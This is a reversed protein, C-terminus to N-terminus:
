EASESDRSPIKKDRAQKLEEVKANLFDEIAKEQRKDDAMMAQFNGQYCVGARLLLAGAMVLPNM